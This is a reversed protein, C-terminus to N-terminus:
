IFAHGLVSYVKDKRELITHATRINYKKPWDSQCYQCMIVCTLDEKQASPDVNLRQKTALLNTVIAEM